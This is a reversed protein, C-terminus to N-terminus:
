TLHDQLHGDRPAFARRRTKRGCLPCDGTACYARSGMPCSPTRRLYATPNPLM